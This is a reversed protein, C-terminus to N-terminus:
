RVGVSPITNLQKGTGHTSEELKQISAGSGQFGKKQPIRSQKAYGDSSEVSRRTERVM